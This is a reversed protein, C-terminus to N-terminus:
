ICQTELFLLFEKSEKDEQEEQELRIQEEIRYIAGKLSEIADKPNMRKTLQMEANTILGKAAYYNDQATLAM